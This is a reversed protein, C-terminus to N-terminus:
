FYKFNITNILSVLYFPFIITTSILLIISYNYMIPAIALLIAMIMNCLFSGKAKIVREEFKYMLVVSTVTFVPSFFIGFYLYGQSIMPVIKGGSIGSGYLYYNYILTSNIQGMRYLLTNFINVFGLSDGLIFLEMREFVGIHSLDFSRLSQYVDYFGNTYSGIISSLTHYSLSSKFYYIILVLSLIFLSITSISILFKKKRPFMEIIQIFFVFTIILNIMQRSTTIIANLVIVIIALYLYRNLPKYKYKECLLALIRSILIYRTIEGFTYGVWRLGNPVSSKLQENFTITTEQISDNFIFYYNRFLAPFKLYLAITFTIIIITFINLKGFNTANMFNYKSKYTVICNRKREFFWIVAFICMMEYCILFISKIITESSYSLYYLDKPFGEIFILSPVVVYRVFLLLLIVYKFISKRDYLKFFFINLLGYLLPLFFLYEYIGKEEQSFGIFISVVISICSIFWSIFMPQYKLVRIRKYRAPRFSNM